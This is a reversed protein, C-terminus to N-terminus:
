YVLCTLTWPNFVQGPVETVRTVGLILETAVDSVTYGIGYDHGFWYAVWPCSCAQSSYFCLFILFFLDSVIKQKLWCCALDRDRDSPDCQNPSNGM